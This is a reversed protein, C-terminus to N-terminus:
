GAADAADRASPEKDQTSERGNEMRTEKRSVIVM